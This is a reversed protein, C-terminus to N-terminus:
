LADVPRLHAPLEALSEATDFDRLVADDGLEVETVSEAHRQLLARAGVDGTLAQIDPFFRRDWLVPNGLRGKSTPVVITRGEDPDYAEILRDLDDRRLFAPAEVATVM